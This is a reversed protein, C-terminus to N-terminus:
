RDSSCQFSNTPFSVEPPNRFLVSEHSVGHHLKSFARILDSHPFFLGLGSRDIRLDAIESEVALSPFLRFKCIRSGFLIESLDTSLSVFVSSLNQIQSLSVLSLSYLTESRLAQGEVQSSISTKEKKDM